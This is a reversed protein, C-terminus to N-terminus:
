SLAFATLAFVAKLLTLHKSHIGDGNVYEFNTLSSTFSPVAKNIPGASFHGMDEGARCCESFTRLKSPKSIAEHM